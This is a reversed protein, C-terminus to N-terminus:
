NWRPDEPSWWVKLLSKRTSDNVVQATRFTQVHSDAFLFNAREGHKKFDIYGRFPGRDRSQDAQRFKIYPRTGDQGIVYNTGYYGPNASDRFIAHAEGFLMYRHGFSVTYPNFHTGRQTAVADAHVVKNDREYPYNNAFVNMSYARGAVPDSPCAFIGFFASKTQALKEAPVYRTVMHRYYWWDADRYEKAATGTPARNPPPQLKHDQGYFGFALGLEKLHSMCVTVKAQERARSLSPLLISILLALIAVVVLLEILTFGRGGSRSVVCACRGTATCRM